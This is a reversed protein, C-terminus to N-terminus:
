PLLSRFFAVEERKADVIRKLIM